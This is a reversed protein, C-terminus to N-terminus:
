LHSWSHSFWFLSVFQCLITFYVFYLKFLHFNSWDSNKRSIGECTLHADYLYFECFLICNIEFVKFGAILLTVSSSTLFRYRYMSYGKATVLACYGYCCNGCRWNAFIESQKAERAYTVNTLCFQLLGTVWIEIAIQM